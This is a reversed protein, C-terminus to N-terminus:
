SDSDREIPTFTLTPADGERSYEHRRAMDVLTSDREHRATFWHTTSWDADILRSFPDNKPIAVLIGFRGTAETPASDPLNHANSIDVAYAYSVAPAAAMAM